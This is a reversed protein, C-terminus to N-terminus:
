AVEKVVVVKQQDVVIGESSVVHGLFTFVNLWFNCKSFKGYLRQVKLTQLVILFHNVHDVESKSYVFIDDIFVIVFLDLIQHFVWNMLDMFAM